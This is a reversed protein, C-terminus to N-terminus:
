GSVSAPVICVCSLAKQAALVADWTQPPNLCNDCNGCPQSGYEDFYDLLAQRPM